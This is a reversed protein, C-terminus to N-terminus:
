GDDDEFAAQMARAQPLRLAETIQRREEIQEPSDPYDPAEAKRQEALARIRDYAGRPDPEAM